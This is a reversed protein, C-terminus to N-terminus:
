VGALEMEATEMVDAPVDEYGDITNRQVIAGISRTYGDLTRLCALAMTLKRHKHGCDWLSISDIYNGDHDAIWSNQDIQHITYTM